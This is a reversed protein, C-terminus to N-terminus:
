FVHFSCVTHSITWHRARTHMTIFMQTLYCAPPPSKEVLQTFKELLVRNWGAGLFKVM